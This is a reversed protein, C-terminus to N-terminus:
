DKHEPGGECVEWSHRTQDKWMKNAKAVNMNPVVFYFRRKPMGGGYGQTTSTWFFGDGSKYLARVARYSLADGLVGKIEHVLETENPARGLHNSLNIITGVFQKLYTFDPQPPPAKQVGCEPRQLDFLVQGIRGLVLVWPCPPASYISVYPTLRVKVLRGQHPRYILLATPLFEVAWGLKTLTLKGGGGRSCRTHHPAWGSYLCEMLVRVKVGDGFIPM